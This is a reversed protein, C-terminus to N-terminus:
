VRRPSIRGAYITMLDTLQPVKGVEQLVVGCASFTEEYFGPTRFRWWRSTDPDAVVHDVVVLLGEDSLISRLELATKWIPVSPEGLVGFALILDFTTATGRLEQFFKDTPCSVYDVSVHGHAANIMGSSPDFGLARGDILNALMPTFRGYGCGFDLATKETGSLHPRIAERLTPIQRATEGDLQEDSVVLSMVSRRGHSHVLQDWVDTM